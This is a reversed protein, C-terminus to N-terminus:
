SLLMYWIGGACVFAANLLVDEGQQPRDINLVMIILAAIGISNARAGYVGLMSFFFCVIFILLGLLVSHSAAFGTLLAVIFIIGTCVMMANRRHHIPGPNDPMSVCMAGLSIVIGASLLNFYSFVIAPLAIGITMRIGDSLYYSNIFSKYEKIYDM